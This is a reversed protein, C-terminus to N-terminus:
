RNMIHRRQSRSLRWYAMDIARLTYTIMDPTFADNNRMEANVYDYGYQVSEFPTMTVM